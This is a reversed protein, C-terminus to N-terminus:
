GEATAEAIALAWGDVTGRGDDRTLRIGSKSDEPVDVLVLLQAATNCHATFM